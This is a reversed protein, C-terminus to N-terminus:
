SRSFQLSVSLKMSAPWPEFQPQLAMLFFFANIRHKHQGTNLYLSQSPCIVRGLLGVSQSFHNRFQILPRPGSHAPLAMTIYVYASALVPLFLAFRQFLYYIFLFDRSHPFSRVGKPWFKVPQTLHYILHSTVVSLNILCNSFIVHSILLQFLLFIKLIIKHKTHGSQSWYLSSIYFLWRFNYRYLVIYMKEFVLSFIEKTYQQSNSLFPFIIFVTSTCLSPIM